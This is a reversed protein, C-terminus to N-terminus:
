AIDQQYAVEWHECSFIIHQLFNKAVGRVTIILTSFVITMTRKQLSKLAKATPLSSNWVPSTYVLVPQTTYHNSTLADSKHDSITLKVGPQQQQWM